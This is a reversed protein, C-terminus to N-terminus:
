EEIIKAVASVGTKNNSLTLRNAKKKVQLEPGWFLDRIFKDMEQLDKPACVATTFEDIHVTM